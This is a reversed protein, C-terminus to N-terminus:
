NFTRKKLWKPYESLRECFEIIPNVVHIDDIRIRSEGDM